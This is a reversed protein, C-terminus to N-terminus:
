KKQLGLKQVIRGIQKIEALSAKTSDEPSLYLNSMDFKKLVAQYEADGMANKFAEHLKQVIQGPLGKPGVV